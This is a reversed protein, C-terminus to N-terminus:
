HRGRDRLAPAAHRQVMSPREVVPASRSLRALGAIAATAIAGALFGVGVWKGVGAITVAPMFAAPEAAGVPLTGSAAVPEVPSKRRAGIESIRDEPLRAAVGTKM